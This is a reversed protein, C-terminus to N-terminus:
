RQRVRGCNSGGRCRKVIGFMYGGSTNGTEALRRPGDRECETSMLSSPPGTALSARLATLAGTAVLVAGHHVPDDSPATSDICSCVRRTSIRSCAVAPTGVRRVGPHPTDYQELDRRCAWKGDALEIVRFYRAM